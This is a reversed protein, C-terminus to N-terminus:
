KTLVKELRIVRKELKEFEDYYVKRKLEFKIEAIDNKIIEVSNELKDFRTELGDFKKSLSGQNEALLTIKDDINELVVTFKDRESSKNKQQKKTKKM